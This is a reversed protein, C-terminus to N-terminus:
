LPPWTRIRDAEQAPTLTRPGDGAERPHDPLSAPDRWCDVVGLSRTCFPQTEPPPEIPRCYSKGQDLRVISCDRGSLTSYLADFPSRQIVAISGIGLAAVGIMVQEPSGGCGALLLLVMLHRM